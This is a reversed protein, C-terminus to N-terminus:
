KFRLPITKNLIIHYHSLLCIFALEYNMISNIAVPSETKTGFQVQCSLYGKKATKPSSKTTKCCVYNHKYLNFQSVIKITYLKPYNICMFAISPWTTFKQNYSKKVRKKPEVSQPIKKSMSALNLFKRAIYNSKM